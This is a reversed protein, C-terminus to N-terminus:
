EMFHLEFVAGKEEESKVRLQLGNQNALTYAITLGLGYGDNSLSFFPDFIKGLASEPIGKGNDKVALVHDGSESIETAIKIAGTGPAVASVANLLLNIIVQCVQDPDAYISFDNIDQNIAVNKELAEGGASQISRDVINGISAERKVPPRPRAFDLLNTLIKTMRDTEESIGRSLDTIDELDTQAMGEQETISSSNSESIRQLVQASTKIGALPNKLEHAIQASFLGLHALKNYQFLEEQRKKLREAMLNFEEALEKTEQGYEIDIRHNLDGAAFRRAGAIISKLLNSTRRSLEFVAIVAILTILGAFILNRVVQRNVEGFLVSEPMNIILKWGLRRSVAEYKRVSQILTQNIKNKPEHKWIVRDKDDLLLIEIGEGLELAEFSESFASLPARGELVIVDGTGNGSPIKQFVALEIKQDIWEKSIPTSAVLFPRGNNVSDWTKDGFHIRLRDFPVSIRSIQEAPLEVIEPGAHPQRTKIIGIVEPSYSLLLLDNNVKEYLVDMQTAAQYALLGLHKESMSELSRNGSEITLYSIVIIPLYGFIMYFLFILWKLSVNRM